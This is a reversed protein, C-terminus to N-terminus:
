EGDHSAEQDVAARDDEYQQITREIREVLDPNTTLLALASGDDKTLTLYTSERETMEVFLSAFSASLLRSTDDKPDIIESM